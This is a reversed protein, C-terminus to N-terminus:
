QIIQSAIERKVNNVATQTKQQQQKIDISLFFLHVDAHGVTFHVWVGAHHVTPPYPQCIREAYSHKVNYQQANGEETNRNHPGECINNVIKYTNETSYDKTIDRQTRKDVPQWKRLLARRGTPTEVISAEKTTQTANNHLSESACLNLTLLMVDSVLNLSEPVDHHIFVQVM